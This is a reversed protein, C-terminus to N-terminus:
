GRSSASTPRGSAGSVAGRGPLPSAAGTGGVGTGRGRTPGLGRLSARGRHASIPGGASSSRSPSTPRRSTIVLLSAGCSIDIIATRRARTSPASISPGIAGRSASFGRRASSRRITAGPGGGPGSAVIGGSGSRGRGGQSPGTPSAIARGKRCIVPTIFGTLTGSAPSATAKSPSTALTGVAEARRRM